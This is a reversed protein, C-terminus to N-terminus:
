QLEHLILARLPRGWDKQTAVESSNKITDILVIVSSGRDKFWIGVLEGDSDEVTEGPALRIAEIYDMTDTRIGFGSKALANRAATQTEDLSRQFTTGTGASPMQPLEDACGVLTFVAFLFVIALNKSSYTM